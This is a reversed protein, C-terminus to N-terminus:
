ISIFHSKLNFNAWINKMINRSEWKVEGGNAKESWRIGIWFLFFSQFTSIYEPQTWHEIKIFKIIFYKELFICKHFIIFVTKQCM